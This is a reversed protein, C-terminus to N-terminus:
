LNSDQVAWWLSQCISSYGFLDVYSFINRPQLEAQNSRRGTVCSAALEFRTLGAM